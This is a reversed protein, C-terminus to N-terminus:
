RDELSMIVVKWDAANLEHFSFKRSYIVEGESNKAEILIYSFTASLDKVKISTNPEVDGIKKGEVYATLVMDTQNEIQLPVAPDCASVFLALFFLLLLTLGLLRYNNQSSM